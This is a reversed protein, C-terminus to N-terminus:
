AHRLLSPNPLCKLRAARSLSKFPCAKLRATGLSLFLAKAGSPISDHLWRTLVCCVVALRVENSRGGPLAASKEVVWLPRLEEEFGQLRIAPFTVEQVFVHEHGIVKVNQNGWFRGDFARDLEYLATKGKPCFLLKAARHLDPLAPKRVM